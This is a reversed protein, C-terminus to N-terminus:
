DHDHVSFAMLDTITPQDAPINPYADAHATLVVTEFRGERVGLIDDPALAAAQERTCHLLRYTELMADLEGEFALRGADLMCLYDAFGELDSLIHTAFLIAHGADLMFGRLLDIVRERALPDLGSTPEDLVLLQAHHSLAAAIMLQKTMGVSYDALTKDMPLGFRMSLGAFRRDDWRPHLDRMIRACQAATLSPPFAPVQPVIGIRDRQAPTLERAPSGLTIASGEAIFALGLIAKILTTKGSGNPGVLGTVCGAPVAMTLPGLTFDGRRLVLDDVLIADAEAAAHATAELADPATALATM